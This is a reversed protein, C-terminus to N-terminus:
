PKDLNKQLEDVFVVTFSNKFNTWMDFTITFIFPADEKHIVTYLTCICHCYLQEFTCVLFYWFNQLPYTALCTTNAVLLKHM